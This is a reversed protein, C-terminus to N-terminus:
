IFRRSPPPPPPPPPPILVVVLPDRRYKKDPYKERERAENKYNKKKIKKGIIEREM